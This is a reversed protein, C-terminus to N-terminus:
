KKSIMNKFKQFPSPNLAKCQTELAKCLTGVIRDFNDSTESKNLDLQEMAKDVQDNFRKMVEAKNRLTEIEVQEKAMIAQKFVDTILKYAEVAAEGQKNVLTCLVTVAGSIMESVNQDSILPIIEESNGRMAKEVIVDTVDAIKSIQYESM